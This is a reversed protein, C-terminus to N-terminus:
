LPRCRRQNANITGKMDEVSTNMKEQSASTHYNVSTGYGGHNATM